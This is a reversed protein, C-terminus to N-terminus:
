TYFRHAPIREKYYISRVPADSQCLRSEHNKPLIGEYYETPLANEQERKFLSLDTGPLSGKNHFEILINAMCESLASCLEKFTNGEDIEDAGVSIHNIWSFIQKKKEQWNAADKRCEVFSVMVRLTEFLLRTHANIANSIFWNKSFIRRMIRDGLIEFDEHYIAQEVFRVMYKLSLEPIREIMLKDFCPDRIDMSHFIMWVVDRKDGWSNRRPLNKRYIPYCAVLCRLIWETAKLRDERRKEEIKVKKFKEEDNGFKSSLLFEMGSLCQTYVNSEEDYTEEKKALDRLADLFLETEIFPDDIVDPRRSLWRNLVGMHFNVQRPDNSQSIYYHLDEFFANAFNKFRARDKERSRCATLM